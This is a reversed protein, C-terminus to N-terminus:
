KGIAVFKRKAKQGAGCACGEGVSRWYRMAEALLAEGINHADASAAAVTRYDTPSSEEGMKTVVGYPTVNVQINRVLRAYAFYALATKVGAFHRVGCGGDYDGGELMTEEQETLNVGDDFRAYLSAGIVPLLDLHEAERIYIDVKAEDLNNALPRVQQIDDMSIIM